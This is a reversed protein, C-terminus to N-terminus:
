FYEELVKYERNFMQLLAQRRIIRAKLREKIVKTFTSIMICVGKLANQM